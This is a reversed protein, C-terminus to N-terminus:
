FRRYRWLTEEVDKLLAVQQKSISGDQFTISDLGWDKNQYRTFEHAVQKLAKLKLDAPLTITGSLCAYGAEYTLKINKYGKAWVSYIRRVYGEANYILYDATSGEVLLIDDEYISTVTVIPWNPLYLVRDGNGDLLLSTYATKVLTRDTRSDFEASVGNIIAEIIPTDEDTMKGIYNKADALSVLASGSIAIPKADSVVRVIFPKEYVSGGSGTIKLTVLYYSGATGGSIRQWGNITDHGPDGEKTLGTEVTSTITAITEDKLELHFDYGVKYDENTRKERVQHEM